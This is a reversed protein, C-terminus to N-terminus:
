IIERDARSTRRTKREEFNVITGKEAKLKRNEKLKEFAKEEFKIINGNETKLTNNEMLKGDEAKILMEENFISNKSAGQIVKLGRENEKGFSMCVIDFNAVSGETTPKM